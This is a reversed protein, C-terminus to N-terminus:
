LFVDALSDNYDMGAPTEANDDVYHLEVRDAHFFSDLRSTTWPVAGGFDLSFLQEEYAELALQSRMDADNLCAEHARRFASLLIQTEHKLYAWQDAFYFYPRLVTCIPREGFYLNRQRFKWRMIGDAEAALNDDLLGHYYNVADGLM